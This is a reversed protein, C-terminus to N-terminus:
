TAIFQFFDLVKRKLTKFIQVSQVQRIISYNLNLWSEAGFKQNDYQPIGPDVRKEDSIFFNANTQKRISKSNFKKYSFM